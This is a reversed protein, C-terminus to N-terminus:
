NPQAVLGLLAANRKLTLDVETAITRMSSPVQNLALPTEQDGQVIVWGFDGGDILAQDVTKPRDIHAGGSKNALMLVISRRTYERGQNDKIVPQKWWTDFDVWKHPLALVDEATKHEYSYEMAGGELAAVRMKTLGNTTLLNAPNVHGSSLWLMKDKAELLALLSTSAPTDHALVRVTVALRKAEHQRGLDFAIASSLLFDWQEM